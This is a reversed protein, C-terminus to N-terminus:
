AQVLRVPAAVFTVYVLGLPNRQELLRVRARRVSAGIAGGLAGAVALVPSAHPVLVLVASAAGVSLSVGIVRRVVSGCGAGAWGLVAAFALVGLTHM